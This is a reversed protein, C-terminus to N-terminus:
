QDASINGIPPEVGCGNDDVLMQQNQTEPVTEVYDVSMAMDIEGMVLQLNPIDPSVSPHILQLTNDQRMHSHEGNTNEGSCFELPAAMTSNGLMHMM